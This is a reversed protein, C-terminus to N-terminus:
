CKKSNMTAICQINAGYFEIIVSKMARCMPGSPLSVESISALIPTEEMSSSIPFVIGVAIRKFPSSCTSAPIM